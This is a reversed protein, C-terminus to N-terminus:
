HPKAINIFQFHPGTKKICCHACLCEHGTDRLARKRDTMWVQIGCGPCFEKEPNGWSPNPEPKESVPLLMVLDSPTM